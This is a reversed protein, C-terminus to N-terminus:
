RRRPLRGHVGGRGRKEPELAESAGEREMGSERKSEVRGLGRFVVTAGEEEGALGQDGRLEWGSGGNDRIIV